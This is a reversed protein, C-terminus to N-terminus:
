LCFSAVPKTRNCASRNFTAALTRRFFHHTIRSLRYATAAATARTVAAKSKDPAERTGGCSLTRVRLAEPVPGSCGVGLMSGGVDLPRALCREQAQTLILITGFISLRPLAPLNLTLHISRRAYVAIAHQVFPQRPATKTKRRLPLVDISHQEPFPIM